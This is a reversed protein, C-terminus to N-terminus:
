RQLPQPRTTSTNRRNSGRWIQLGSAIVFLTTFVFFMLRAVDASPSPQTSFLGTFLAIGFFAKSWGLM